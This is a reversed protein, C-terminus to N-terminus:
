LVTELVSILRDIEEVTNYHVVSVRVVGDDPNLGLATVLRYAYMNGYRIGIPHKDVEASIAASSLRNHVFSVTGVAKGSHNGILRVAPKSRLYDLLRDAPAQELKEMAEFAKVVTERDDVHRRALFQLYPRTALLGACAEHSIGGLEFKHPVSDNPIFYHNPGVIEALAETRGFMAAMHPGYVKYTSFLYWDVNWAAVDIAHHPAYAVGDVVVRGGADHVLKVIAPVDVVQGLINSVHPFAVIRTRDSLLNKLDELSCEFTDPDMRWVHVTAGRARLKEWPGANSEHSTEAIIFEDGPKLTEAYSAALIHSLATTSPGLIIKGVGESNMFTEMFSHAAEVTATARLAQPYGAGLQVYNSTMYGCIADAVTGPVQSGGANELFAFGSALAPFWARVRDIEHTNQM